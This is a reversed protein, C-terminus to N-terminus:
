KREEPDHCFICDDDTEYDPDHDEPLKYLKDGNVLEVYYGKDDRETYYHCHHDISDPCYWSSASNGTLTNKMGGWKDEKIFFSFDCDIMGYGCHVCEDKAEISSQTNCNPCVKYPKPQTPYIKKFEKM